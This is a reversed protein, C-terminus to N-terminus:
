GRDLRFYSSNDGKDRQRQAIKDRNETVSKIDKAAKKKQINYKYSDLVKYIISLKALSDLLVCTMTKTNGFRFAKKINSVSIDGAIVLNIFNIIHDLAKKQFRLNKINLKRLKKKARLKKRKLKKLIRCTRKLKNFDYDISKDASSHSRMKLPAACM